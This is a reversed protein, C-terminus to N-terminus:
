TPKNRLIKNKKIYHYFLHKGLKEKLYKMKLIYFHLQNRYILKTYQSKALNIILELLNRTADKPNELYLIM